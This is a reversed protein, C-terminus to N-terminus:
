NDAQRGAQSAPDSPESQRDIQNQILAQSYALERSKAKTPVTSIELKRNHNRNNEDSYHCNNTHRPPNLSMM